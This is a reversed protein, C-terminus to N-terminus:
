RPIAAPARPLAGSALRSAGAGSNPRRAAEAAPAPTVTPSRLTGGIAFARGSEAVLRFALAGSRSASGTVHFLGAGAASGAGADNTTEMRGPKFTLEGNRLTVQAAFRRFRLPQPGAASPLLLRRLSGDNWHFRASGAASSALESGQWGSLRLHYSGGATGTAWNDRM